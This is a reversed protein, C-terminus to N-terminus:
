RRQTTHTPSNEGPRDRPLSLLHPCQGRWGPTKVTVYSRRYWWGLWVLPGERGVAGLGFPVPGELGTRM